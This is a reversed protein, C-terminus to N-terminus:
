HALRALFEGGSHVVQRVRRRSWRSRDGRGPFGRTRSRSRQEPNRHRLFGAGGNSVAPLFLLCPFATLRSGPGQAPPRITFMGVGPSTRAARKVLAVGAAGASIVVPWQAPIVSGSVSASRHAMEGGFVVAIVEGGVL